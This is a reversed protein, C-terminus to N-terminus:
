LTVAVSPERTTTSVAFRGATSGSGVAHSVTDDQDPDDATATGVLTGAAANEAM